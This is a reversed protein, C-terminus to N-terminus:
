FVLVVFVLFVHHKQELLLYEKSTRSKIDSTSVSMKKANHITNNTKYEFSM